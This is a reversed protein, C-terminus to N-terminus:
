RNSNKSILNNLNNETVILFNGISDSKNEYLILLKKKSIREDRKIVAFEYFEEGTRSKNYNDFFLTDNKYTYTGTVESIAFCIDKVIFSYDKKIKIKTTCNAAGEREAILVNESEFIEFNIIGTPKFFALALVCSLLIIAISRERNKFKERISLIIQRLLVFALILFTLALISLLPFSYFGLKAEWFYSTNV